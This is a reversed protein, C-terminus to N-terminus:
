GQEFDIANGRITVQGGPAELVLHEAAHVLVRKGHLEVFSGGNNHLRAYGPSLRLDSNKGTELRVANKTDDLQLRQGGPTLLTYRGIRGDAVGADPPETPGYLGGLVVAQAPDGRLFQVLVRDGVDPLAIIGKDPGAAPLLVQLWESELTGHTPLEVRVRGLGRPDDVGTVLGLAATAAPPTPVVPPLSDLETLYGRERDITHRASTVAYRGAVSHAVGSVEVVAGPRLAPNGAAVGWMVRERGVRRELEDQALADAQDETQCTRGTLTRREAALEPSADPIDLRNHASRSQAARAEAVWPDWALVTVAQSAPDTNIEFRGELLTRGLALPLPADKGALTLLLLRDDRLTFYLGSRGAVEALLEFDTQEHQVLQQWLAGADTADVEIGLDATLDRALEACTLQRHVRLPQRQRLRQLRDYARLRLLQGGDGDYQYEVAVVEGGFLREAFGEVRVELATGRRDFSTREAPPDYFTLECQTPLSLRQQVRLAGLCRMLEQPADTGDFTVFLRPLATVGTM